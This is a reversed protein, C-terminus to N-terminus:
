SFFDDFDHTSNAKDGQSANDSSSAGEGKNEPAFESFPEDQPSKAKGNEDAKNQGYPNGYPNQYQGYGRGYPNGYPNNYPNGYINRYQEQRRMFEEQKKRMYAEYDVAENKRICFVIVFRSLPVMFALLSLPLHNKTAYKRLLGTILILLLLGFILQFISLFFNSYNYFNEVTRSFGMLNPWYPKEWYTENQLPAGHNVYLYVEAAITGVTILTVCMQAIMAYIGIRKIKHGFMQCEGALKGMYWINVFPIFALWTKKMNRKKAMASLGIGQLVFLISLIAIGIILSYSFLQAWDESFFGSILTAIQYTSYFEM